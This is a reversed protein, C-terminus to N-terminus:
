HSKPRVNNKEGRVKWVDIYQCAHKHMADLVFRQVTPKESCRMAHRGALLEIIMQQTVPDTTEENLADSLRNLSTIVKSAVKM